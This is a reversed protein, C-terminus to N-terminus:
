RAILKLLYAHEPHIPLMEVGSTALARGTLTVGRHTWRPLTTTVEHPDVAHELTVTYTLEPDLGAFRLRGPPWTESRRLSTVGFIAERRDSSVVGNIWIAPDPHDVSVM